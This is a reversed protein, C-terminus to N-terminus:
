SIDDFFSPAVKTTSSLFSTPIIVSPSKLLAIILLSKENSFMDSKKFTSLEESNSHKIQIYEISNTYNIVVDEIHPTNSKDIVVQKMNVNTLLEVIKELAVLDQYKYGASSASSETNQTNM